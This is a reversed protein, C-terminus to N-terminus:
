WRWSGHCVCDAKVDFIEVRRQSGWLWKCGFSNGRAVPLHECCSCNWCSLTEPARTPCWRGWLGATLSSFTLAGEGGRCLWETVPCVALPQRNLATGTSLDLRRVPFVRPFWGLPYM